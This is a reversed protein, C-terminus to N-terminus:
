LITQNKFINSSRIDTECLALNRIEKAEHKWVFHKSLHRDGPFTGLFVTAVVIQVREKRLFSISIRNAMSILFRCGLELLHIRKAEFALFLCFGNQELPGWPILLSLWAHEVRRAALVM